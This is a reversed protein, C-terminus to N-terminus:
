RYGCAVNIGANAADTIDPYKSDTEYFRAGSIGAAFKKYGVDAGYSNKANVEGCVVKGGDYYAIRLNQFKVSDPDKMLRRVTDQTATMTKEEGNKELFPRTESGYGRVENLSTMRLNEMSNQYGTAMPVCASLVVAISLSVFLRITM